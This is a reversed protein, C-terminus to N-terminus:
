GRLGGFGFPDFDRWENKVLTGALILEKLPLLPISMLPCCDFQLVRKHYDASGLRFSGGFGAETRSAIAAFLAKAPGM